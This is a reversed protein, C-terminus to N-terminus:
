EFFDVFVVALNSQFFKELPFCKDNNQSIIRGDDPLVWM